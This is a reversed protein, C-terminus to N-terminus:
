QESKDFKVTFVQYACPQEGCLTDIIRTGLRRVNVAHLTHLVCAREVIYHLVRLM